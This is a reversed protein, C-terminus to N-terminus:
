RSVLSKKKGAQRGDSYWMRILRDVLSGTKIWSARRRSHVDWAIKRTDYLDVLFSLSRHSCSPWIIFVGRRTWGWFRYTAIRLAPSHSTTTVSCFSFTILTSSANSGLQFGKKYKGDDNQCKVGEVYFLYSVVPM